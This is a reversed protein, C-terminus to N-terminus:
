SSAITLTAAAERPHLPAPRTGGELYQSSQDNWHPSGPNGSVGAPFIAVSRDLDALDWVVRWSAIVGARLGAADDPGGQSVTHDDGGFPADAAVFLAELGPISALPHALFLRHLEGWTRGHAEEIAEDLAALLLDDDLWGNPEGLLRTLVSGTWTEAGALYVSTLDEGLKPELVLRAITRTWVEYMAAAASDARVDGDWGRLLDLAARQRDDSPTVATLGAIVDSAPLSVTDTQIAAMSDVDHNERSGLLVSIRNARHAGHFDNSILHPSGKAHAGDNATVLFGEPPDVITPLDEPDITGVWEHEDNWGPVPETGVGSARIPHVGTLQYGITGDVDAYVFNQGPCGVQLVAARFEDFTTARAAAVTLSPRIAVDHGTWRLAYTGDIPGYTPSLTGMPAHTLIPGHKTERVLVTRPEPEGRVNIQETRERVVADEREEFLDQVDGTVNTASWAHHPTAGLIIGPGFVLAVGRAEYGPAVLHLELWPSPQLAPLHPDGALLPKGSATKAGAVVWANSGLGKGGATPPMLTAVGASGLVRRIRARMLEKDWNNSLLWALSAYCSAWDGADDSLWPVLDLLTYEIPSAPMHEVWLQAGERFRAHMAHDEDTWGELHTKAAMHLGVTRVFRDADFTREGFVESLRGTASRIALELQFLREGATVFGQARWLDDLNAAEISPIGFADRRITVPAAFGRVEITGEAPFGSASAQARLVEVFDASV